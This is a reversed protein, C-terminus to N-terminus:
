PCNAISRQGHRREHRYQQDPRLEANRGQRRLRANRRRGATPRGLLLLLPASEAALLVLTAPLLDADIAAFTNRM